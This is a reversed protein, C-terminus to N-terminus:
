ICTIDERCLPCFAELEQEENINPISFWCRYCLSHGCKTKTTTKNYCVCCDEVCHKLKVNDFAGFIKSLVLKNSDENQSLLGFMSLKLKPLIELLKECFSFVKPQVVIVIDSNAPWGEAMNFLRVMNDSETDLISDSEAYFRVSCWASYNCCEIYCNCIVGDISKIPISILEDKGCSTNKYLSMVIETLQEAPTQTISNETNTPKNTFFERINSM